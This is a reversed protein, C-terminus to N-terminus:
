ALLHTTYKYGQNKKNNNIHINSTCVRLNIVIYIEM